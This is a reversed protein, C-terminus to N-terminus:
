NLSSDFEPKYDSKSYNGWANQLKSIAVDDFFLNPNPNVVTWANNKIENDLQGAAWLSTGNMFRFKNQSLKKSEVIQCFTVPSGFYLGTTIVHNKELFEEYGHIFYLGKVQCPGGLFLPASDLKGDLLMEKANDLSLDNELLETFAVKGVEKPNLIIGQAGDADHEFLFVVSNSFVDDKIVKSNAILIKQPYYM